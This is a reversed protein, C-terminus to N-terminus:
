VSIITRERSPQNFCDKWHGGKKVWDMADLFENLNCRGYQDNPCRDKFRDLATLNRVQDNLIVRIWHVGDCQMTEFLARGALPTAQNAAYGDKRVRWTDDQEFGLAPQEEFLGLAFLVSTMVSDHTFDVYMTQERALPFDEEDRDLDPGQAACTAPNTAFTRNRTLRAVLEQTWGVGQTPGLHNGPGFEWWKKLDIYYAYKLWMDQTFLKCFPSNDQVELKNSATANFPCLEILSIIRRNELNVGELEGNIQTRISSIKLFQDRYYEAQTNHRTEEFRTCRNHDLPNPTGKNESIVKPNNGSWSPEAGLTTRQTTSYGEKFADASQGMRKSDTTRLFPMSEAALSKYREFFTTGLMNMEHWGLTSLEGTAKIEYFRMFELRSGLKIAKKM